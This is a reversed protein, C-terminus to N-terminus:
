ANSVVHQVAGSSKKEGHYQERAANGTRGDWVSFLGLGARPWRRGVAVAVSRNAVEVDAVDAVDRDISDKCFGFGEETTSYPEMAVGVLM